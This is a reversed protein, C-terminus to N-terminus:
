FKSPLAYIHNKSLIFKTAQNGICNRPGASFPCFEFPHKDGAPNYFREPDYKLPDPFRKPDRHLAPFPINVFVGKPLEYNDDSFISKM